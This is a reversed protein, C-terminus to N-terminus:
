YDCSSMATVLFAAAAAAAGASQCPAWAPEIM